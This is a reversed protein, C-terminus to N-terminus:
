QRGSRITEPFTIWEDKGLDDFVVLEKRAAPHNEPLVVYAAGRCVVCLYDSFGSTAPNFPGSQNRWRARDSGLDRTTVPKSAFV